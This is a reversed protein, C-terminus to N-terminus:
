VPEVGGGLNVHGVVVLGGRLSKELVASAFALLAPLGLLADSKPADFTRVQITLEQQRPDRDGILEHRRTLLAQEAFKVSERFPGPASVNAITIGHGPLATV